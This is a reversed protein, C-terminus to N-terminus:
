FKIGGRVGFVADGGNVWEITGGFYFRDVNVDAGGRIGFDTSSFSNVGDSAHSFYAAPIVYPSLSLGPSGVALPVDVGLGIGVPISYSDVGDQSAFDARANPCISVGPLMGGTYSSIDLAAGVRFVDLSGSGGGTEESRIYGANASFPGNFNFAGEVGFNNVGSPFSALAGLSAQNNSIPFGACIQAGATGAALLMAAAAAIACTTKKMM